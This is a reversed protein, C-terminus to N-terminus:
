CGMVGCKSPCVQAYVHTANYSDKCSSQPLSSCLYMPWTPFVMDDCTMPPQYYKFSLSQGVAFKTGAAFKVSFGDGIFTPPVYEYVSDMKPFTLPTGAPHITLVVNLDPDVTDMEVFGIPKNADFYMGVMSDGDLTTSELGSVDTVTMTVTDGTIETFFLGSDADDGIPPFNEIKADKARMANAISLANAMEVGGTSSDAVTSYLTMPPVSRAMHRFKSGVVSLDTGELISVKLVSRGTFTDPATFNANPSLTNYDNTFPVPVSRDCCSFVEATVNFNPDFSAIVAFAVKNEYDFYYHEARGPPIIKDPFTVSSPDVITMDMDNFTDFEINFLGDPFGYYWVANGTDSTFSTTGADDYIGIEGPPLSPDEFANYCHHITVLV